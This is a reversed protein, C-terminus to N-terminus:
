KTMVKEFPLIMQMTQDILINTLFLIRRKTKIEMIKFLRFHIHKGTGTAMVLSIRDKGMAIAKITREIGIQQYYRPM